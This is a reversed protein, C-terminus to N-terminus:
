QRSIYKTGEKIVQYKENQSYGIFFLLTWTSPLNKKWSKRIANRQELYIPASIVAILVQSDNKCSVPPKQDYKRCFFFFFSQNAM